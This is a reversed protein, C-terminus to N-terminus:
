WSESPPGHERGAPGHTTADEVFQAADAIVIHDCGQRSEGAVRSSAAGRSGSVVSAVSRIDLLNV